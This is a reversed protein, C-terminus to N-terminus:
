QGQGESSPLDWQVDSGKLAEGPVQGCLSPFLKPPCNPSRLEPRLEAGLWGHVQLVDRSERLDRKRLQVFM